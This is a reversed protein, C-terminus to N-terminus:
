KTKLSKLYEMSPAFFYEGGKFHIHQHFDYKLKATKLVEADKKFVYKQRASGEDIQGIVPDVGDKTDNAREQIVEFQTEISNQYSMFLLGVGATPFQEPHIDEQETSVNRHGFPIGRRAMTHNDIKYFGDADKHRPNTKRIHAFHPCRGDSPDYDSKSDYNFNNFVGSAILKDNGQLKIPTGDEFRGVLKAGVRESEETGKGYMDKGITAEENKFNKVDQELKRFVFYSGYHHAGKKNKIYPDEVLVLGPTARPDFEFKNGQVNHLKIYADVEDKLFLPQSIGDVYGNHELGDGNANRIADGYEIHLIHATKEIADLVLGVKSNMATKDDDALLLMAHIDKDYGLGKDLDPDKLLNKRAKMGVKFASDVDIQNKEGLYDYGKKTIFIAGFTDGSVNNRKYREREWLQKYFSTVYGESFAFLVNKISKISKSKFCIFIMTVHNRGHGKLINGQM